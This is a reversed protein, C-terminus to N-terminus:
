EIRFHIEARFDRQENFIFKQSEKFAYEIAKEFDSSTADFHIHVYQNIKITSDPSNLDIEGKLLYYSPYFLPNNLDTPLVAFFRVEFFRGDFLVPIMPYKKISKEICTKFTKDPIILNETLPNIMWIKGAKDFKFKPSSVPPAIKSQPIQKFLVLKGNAMRSKISELGEHKKKNKGVQIAIDEIDPSHRRIAFRL